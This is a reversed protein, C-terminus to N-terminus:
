TSGSRNAFFNTGDLASNRLFEYATGHLQNTGSKTTVFVSGGMRYGYEASLNNTVVRFQDVADISPKVAQAEFGLPGGSARSNNDLGDVLVNVQYVHQGSAAFGGEGGPRAGVSPGTGATIRALELYNRGNLPLEVIRKNDIVQGVTSTESDLLVAAASVQITEVLQGPKLVCDVRAIQQVDLAIEPREATSFGSKSAEM